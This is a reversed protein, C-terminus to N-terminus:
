SGQGGCNVFQPFAPTGSGISFWLYTCPVDVPVGYILSLTPSPPSRRQLTGTEPAFVLAQKSLSEREDTPREGRREHRAASVCRGFPEPSSLLHLPRTAALTCCHHRTITTTTITTFTATLASPSPPPLFLPHTHPTTNGRLLM